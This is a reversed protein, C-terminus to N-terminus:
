CRFTTSAMNATRLGSKEYEVVFTNGLVRAPLGTFAKTVITNTENSSLLRERYGQLAGSKM